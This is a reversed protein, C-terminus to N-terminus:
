LLEFYAKLHIIIQDITAQVVVTKEELRDELTREQSRGEATVSKTWLYM